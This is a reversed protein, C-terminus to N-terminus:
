PQYKLDIYKTDSKVNIARLASPTEQVPVKENGNLYAAWGPNYVEPIVIQGQRLSYDTTRLRIHNPTYIEYDRPVSLKNEYIYFDKIKTKLELNKTKLEQPAIIYKVNYEGLSKIDPNSVDAGFPPISLSYYNWYTGTLQWAHQNFNKQQITSYGDLLELNYIAAEKQSLCRNLCYVRFIEPDSSLFEYVEKPALNPNKNIPKQFYTIGWYISEMIGFIALFYLVKNKDITKGILYLTLPIVLIWFRTSVRLILYWNQKLLLPYIPSANNLIILGVLGAFTAILLKYGKKLKLFGLIALITPIFGFTIAKETDMNPIIVAKAAEAVSTWKPYVDKDQIALYRTSYKQFKLQPILSPATLAFTIIGAIALPLFAKKRLMIATTALGVILFTPLHSYYLLSLSVSLLIPRLRLSFLIIFPIWAFSYILGVHGAELYAFFKPSLAWLLSLIISTKKSFKFAFKSTLYMGLAGLALHFIFSLLYFTDLPLFLAFINFPYFIPAQPDSILPTGALHLNNWLPIQRHTFIQQKTWYLIPWFFETM